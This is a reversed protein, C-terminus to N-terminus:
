LGTAKQRRFFMDIHTECQHTKGIQVFVTDPMNKATPTCFSDPRNKM